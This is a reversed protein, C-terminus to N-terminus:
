HVVLVAHKTAHQVLYTSFSGFVVRKVTGLGRTGCVLCKIGNADAFELAADRHETCAELKVFINEPKLVGDRLLIEKVATTAEHAAKELERLEEEFNPNKVIIRGAPVMLPPPTFGYWLVVQDGEQVLRSLLQAAKRGYESGDVCLMWSRDGELQLHHVVLVPRECNHMVDTSVSGLVSRKLASNGRSGCVIIDIDHENATAVIGERPDKTDLHGKKHDEPLKDFTRIAKDVAGTDVHGPKGSTYVAVTDDPRLLQRLFQVAYESHESGDVAVLYKM